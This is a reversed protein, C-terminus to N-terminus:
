GAHPATSRRPWERVALWISLSASVIAPVFFYLQEPSFNHHVTTLTLVVISSGIALIAVCSSALWRFRTSLGGIVLAILVMFCALLGWPLLWAATELLVDLFGLLSKSSIASGLVLFAAALGVGPIALVLSLLYLLPRM